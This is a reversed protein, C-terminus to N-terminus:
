ESADFLEHRVTFGAATSDLTKQLRKVLDINETQSQRITAGTAGVSPFFDGGANIEAMTAKSTSSSALPLSAALGDACSVPGERRFASATYINNGVRQSASWPAIPAVTMRPSAPIAAEALRAPPASAPPQPRGPAEISPKASVGQVRATASWIARKVPPVPSVGSRKEEEM